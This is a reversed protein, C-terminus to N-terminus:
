IIQTDLPPKSLSDLIYTINVTYFQGKHKKGANM